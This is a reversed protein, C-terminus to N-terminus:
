KLIIFVDSFFRLVSSTDHLDYLIVLASYKSSINTTLKFTDSDNNAGAITNGSISITYNRYPMLGEITETTENSSTIKTSDPQEDSPNTNKIQITYNTIIGNPRCPTEWKLTISKSTVTNTIRNIDIKSPVTFFTFANCCKATAFLSKRGASNDQVHKAFTKCCRLICRKM